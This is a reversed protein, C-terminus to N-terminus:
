TYIIRDFIIQLQLVFSMILFKLLMELFDKLHKAVTIEKKKLQHLHWCNLSIFM